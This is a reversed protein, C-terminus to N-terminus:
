SLPITDPAAATSTTDAPFQDSRIRRAILRSPYAVAFAAVVMMAPDIPHRYRPSSHTVYYVIPYVLPFMAIPFAYPNKERYMFLLGLLGFLSLFINFALIFREKFAM